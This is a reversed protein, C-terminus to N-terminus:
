QVVVRATARGCVKKLDDDAYVTATIVYTGGHLDIFKRDQRIREDAGDLQIVSRPVPGDQKEPERLMEPTDDAFMDMTRDPEAYEVDFALQRHAKDPTM